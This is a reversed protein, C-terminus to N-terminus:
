WTRTRWSDRTCRHKTAPSSLRSSGTAGNPLGALQVTLARRSCVILARGDVAAKCSSVLRGGGRLPPFRRHTGWRASSIPLLHVAGICSAPARWALAHLQSARMQRGRAGRLMHSVRSGGAPQRLREFFTPPAWLVPSGVRGRHAHRACPLRLWSESEHSSRPLPAWLVVSARRAPSPSSTVPRPRCGFRPVGRETERPLGQPTHPPCGSFSGSQHTPRHM